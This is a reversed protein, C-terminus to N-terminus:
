EGGHLMRLEEGQQEIEHGKDLIRKDTKVIKRGLAALVTGLNRPRERSQGRGNGDESLTINDDDDDNQNDVVVAAVCSSSATAANGM